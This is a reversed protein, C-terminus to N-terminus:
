LRKTCSDSERQGPEAAKLHRIVDDLLEDPRIEFFTAERFRTFRCGVTITRRLTWWSDTPLLAYADPRSRMALRLREGRDGSYMGQMSRRVELWRLARGADFASESEWARTLIVEYFAAVDWSAVTIATKDGVFRSSAMWSPLYTPLLCTRKSRTCFMASPVGM